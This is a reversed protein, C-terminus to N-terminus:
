GPPAAFRDICQEVSRATHGWTWGTRVRDAGARGKARAAAPDGAVLRLVAALAAADPEWHWPRGVTEWEGVRDADWEHRVAPVLYGTADDCYETVPGAGTVVVPLGCAMAETVPLAFGEGRFPLVLCDCAAYLGPVRDDPLTGGLYVLEPAGPRRLFDLVAGGATQGAYFAAEGVDKVVLCVDDAATFAGGYAALLVDIGKRKITGGVFLFKFRKGTPLPVPEAGPRFLDPDVGLPVVRVKDAPVGADLYCDRVAASIAWVEAVAAGRAADAWARPLSGYEWPQVLVFRGAPPPSLDPPWRHRVWVDIPGAPPRGLRAALAPPYGPGPGYGPPDTPVLFVEAGNRVLRDCVARNVRAFSHPEFQAGEWVVRRTM